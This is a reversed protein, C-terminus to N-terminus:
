INLKSNIIYGLAIIRPFGEEVVEVLGRRFRSERADKSVIVMELFISYTPCYFLPSTACLGHDHEAGWVAWGLSM